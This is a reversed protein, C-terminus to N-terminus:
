NSDIQDSIFDMSLNGNFTPSYVMMEAPILEGDYHYDFSKVIPKSRDYQQREVKYTKTELVIPLLSNDGLEQFVQKSIALENLWRIEVDSLIDSYVTYNGSQKINIIEEPSNYVDKVKDVLFGNVFQKTQKKYSNRTIENSEAPNYFQKTDMGGLSNIWFLNVPILTCPLDQYKYKRVESRINGDADELHVTYNDIFGFDILFYDGLVKPSVQIMFMNYLDLGSIAESYTQELVVDHYAKVVIKLSSVYDQLFYLQESSYQNVKSNNPKYTLFKVPLGIEGLVYVAPNFNHFELGGMEASWITYTDPLTSTSLAAQLGSVIGMEIINIKYKLVPRKIPVYLNNQTNTAEWKVTSSIIDSINIYSGNVYTPFPWIDDRDITQLSTAEVVEVKFYTFNPADSQVQFIIDNDSPNYKYPAQIVSIM